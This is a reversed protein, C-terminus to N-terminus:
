GTGASELWGLFSAGDMPRALYYGQALDCGLDRLLEWDGATEIGEAVAQIRLKGAMELSSELMARSTRHRTANRVFAQDIKLETFAIRTLQQMSSYGTGYDDISLGFGRMRLRSLNELARGLNNAMSSETVEFTVDRPKVGEARVVQAMAHALRVDALAVPSLNISLGVDYGKERWGRCAAAASRAMFATFEAMHGSRELVPIFEPAGVVGARPHIWRALAEAGKVAGSRMHVKPQFYPVFEQRALGAVVEEVGYAHAAEHPGVEAAAHMEILTRLREPCIPKEIAGLLRVGYSRAMAEVSSLISRDLASAVILSYDGGDEGLHRILEMGDMEPMDLDSIIVDVTRDRDHLLELAVRGDEAAIVHRAGLGELTNVLVVRQVGQDEVILFRLEAIDM